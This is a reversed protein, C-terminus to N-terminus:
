GRSRSPLIMVAALRVQYGCKRALARLQARSLEEPLEIGHMEMHEFVGDWVYASSIDIRVLKIKGRSSRKTAVYARFPAHIKAM